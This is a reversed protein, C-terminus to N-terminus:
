LKWNWGVERVHLAYHMGDDSDRWPKGTNWISLGDYPFKMFPNGSKLAARIDAYSDLKLTKITARVGQIWTKHNQIGLSNYRTSGLSPMQSCLWNYKPSPTVNRYPGYHGGEIQWWGWLFRKNAQTRPARLALLVATIWIGKQKAM